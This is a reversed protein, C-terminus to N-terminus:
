MTTSTLGARRDSTGALAAAQRKSSWSQPVPLDVTIEARVPATIPGRDVMAEQAALRGHAEYQRTKAPTYIFGKRTVRPRGKAVAAGAIVITVQAGGSM